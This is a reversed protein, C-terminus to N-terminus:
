PPYGSFALLDLDTSSLTTVAFVGLIGTVVVVVLTQAKAVAESGLIDLLTM